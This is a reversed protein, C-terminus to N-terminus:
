PTGRKAHGISRGLTAEIKTKFCSDGLPMSFTAAKRVAELEHIDLGDRFLSQYYLIRQSTTPALRQFVEHDEIISSRSEGVHHRYSSWRYDGPHGVMGARVPNMEIYRYCTLLYRQADVLSAKHRGEWLTGTRGYKKNIYQVYRNGVLQMVRSIGSETSPTMLLHIHNTMLVYAHVAVQYRRIANELCDLFFLYNEYEFFCPKRDNGRQVIHSPIGPQYMRQKRPMPFEM